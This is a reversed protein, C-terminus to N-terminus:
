GRILKWVPVTRRQQSHKSRLVAVGGMVSQVVWVAAFKQRNLCVEEGVQVEDYTEGGIGDLADIIDKHLDLTTPFPQTLGERAYDSAVNIRRKLLEINTTM